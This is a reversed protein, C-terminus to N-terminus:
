CKVSQKGIKQCFINSKITRITVLLNSYSNYFDGKADLLSGSESRKTNVYINEKSAQIDHYVDFFKNFIGDLLIFSTTGDGCGLDMTHQNLSIAKQIEMAFTEYFSNVWLANDPRLWHLNISSRLIEQPNRM